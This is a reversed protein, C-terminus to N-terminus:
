DRYPSRDDGPTPAPTVPAAIPASEVAAAPATSPAAAAAAASSAEVARLGELLAPGLEAVQWRRLESMAALEDPTQPNKRAVAELRERSLLV